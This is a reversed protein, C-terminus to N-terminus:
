EKGKSAEACYISVGLRAVLRGAESRDGVNEVLVDVVGRGPPLVTPVPQKIMQLFIPRVECEAGAVNHVCASPIIRLLHPDLGLLIPGPEEFAEAVPIHGEVQSRAVVLITVIM